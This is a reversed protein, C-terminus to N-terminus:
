RPSAHWSPTHRLPLDIEAVDRVGGVFQQKIPTNRGRSALVVAMFLGSGHRSSIQSFNCQELRRHRFGLGRLLVRAREVAEFGLDLWCSRGPANVMARRSRAASCSTGPSLRAAPRLTAPAAAHSSRRVPRRSGRSSAGSSAWVSSTRSERSGGRSTRRGSGDRRKPARSDASGSIRCPAAGATTQTGPWPRPTSSMTPM